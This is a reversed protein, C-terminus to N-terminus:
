YGKSVYDRQAYTLFMSRRTKLYQLYKSYIDQDVKKFQFNYSNMKNMDMGYPDFLMGRGFKIYYNVTLSDSEKNHFKTIKAVAFEEKTLNGTKDFYQTTIEDVDPLNLSAIDSM